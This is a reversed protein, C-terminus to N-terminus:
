HTCLSGPQDYPVKLWLPWTLPDDADRGANSQRDYEKRPSSGALHDELDRALAETMGTADDNAGLEKAPSPTHRPSSSALISLPM